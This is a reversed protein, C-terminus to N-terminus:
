ASAGAAVPTRRATPVVRLKLPLGPVFHDGLDEVLANTVATAAYDDLVLAGPEVGFRDGPRLTVSGENGVLLLPRGFRIRGPLTRVVGPVAAASITLITQDQDWELAVKEGYLVGISSGERATAVEVQGRVAPDATISGRDLDTLGRPNHRLLLDLFSSMVWASGLDVEEATLGIAQLFRVRGCPTFISRLDTDEVFGLAVLETVTTTTLPGNTNIFHGVSFVNSTSVVYRALNSLLTTPWVAPHAAPDVAAPDVLRFTLEFGFGSTESAGAEPDPVTYLDSLGYSVYHWHPEPDLGRYVAILDLPEPGAGRGPTTTWRHPTQNPYAGSSVATIADWGPATGPEGPEPRLVAELPEVEVQTEDSRGRAFLRM